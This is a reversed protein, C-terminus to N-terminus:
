GQNGDKKEENISEMKPEEPLSGGGNLIANVATAIGMVIDDAAKRKTAIDSISVATDVEFKRLEVKFYNRQIRDILVLVGLSILVTPTFLDLIASVFFVVLPIFEDMKMGLSELIKKM